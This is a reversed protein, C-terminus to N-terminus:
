QSCTLVFPYHLPKRELLRSVRRPCSVFGAPRDGAYVACDGLPAIVVSGAAVIVNEGIHAGPLVICGTGVFSSPGIRVGADVRPLHRQLPHDAYGVNCHTAINVRAALTTDTAIEVNRGIRAGCLRLLALQLPSFVLLRYVVVLRYVAYRLLRGAPVQARVKDM